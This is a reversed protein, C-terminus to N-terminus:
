LWDATDYDKAAESEQAVQCNDFFKGSDKQLDHDLALTITTQAGFKPAKLMYMIPTAVIIFLVAADRFIETNVVGPHLSNATFGTGRLRKTLERSFLVDALKSQDYM